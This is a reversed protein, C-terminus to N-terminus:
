NDLQTRQNTANCGYFHGSTSSYYIAGEITPSCTTTDANLRPRTRILWNIDLETKPDNVNIGVGGLPAGIAGDAFPANILFQGTSTSAFSSIGTGNWVFSYSYDSYAHYGWAFWYKANRVKNWEWGIIVSSSAWTITNSFWWGIFSYDSNLIRNGKGWGITNYELAWTIGNSEWWWIINAWWNYIYNSIGGAIVNSWRDGWTSITNSQWWWISHNSSSAVMANIYNSTGWAITSKNAEGTITNSYWWVISSSSIGSWISNSYAGAIFTGSVQLIANPSITGIGVKEGTTINFIASGNNGIYFRDSFWGIMRTNINNILHINAANSDNTEQLELETESNSTVYLKGTAPTAGIGVSGTNTNRIKGAAWTWLGDGNGGGAGSVVLGASAVYILEGNADLWLVNGSFSTQAHLIGTSIYIKGSANNFEILKTAGDTGDSTIVVRM